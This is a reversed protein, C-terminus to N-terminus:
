KSPCKCTSLKHRMEKVIDNYDDNDDVHARTVGVVDVSIFWHLICYCKAKDWIVDSFKSALWTIDYTSTCLYMGDKNIFPVRSLVIHNINGSHKYPACSCGVIILIFRCCLKEMKLMTGACLSFAVM